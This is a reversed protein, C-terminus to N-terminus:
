LLTSSELAPEAMVLVLAHLIQILVALSQQEVRDGAM